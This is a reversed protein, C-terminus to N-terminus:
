KTGKYTNKNVKESKVNKMDAKSIDIHNQIVIYNDNAGAMGTALCSCGCRTQTRM